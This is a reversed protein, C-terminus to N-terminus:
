EKSNIVVNDKIKMIMIVPNDGEQINSVIKKLPEFAINDNELNYMLATASVIYIATNYDQTVLRHIMQCYGNLIRWKKSEDEPLLYFQGREKDLIYFKVEIEPTYTPYSMLMCLAFQDNEMVLHLQVKDSPYDSIDQIKPHVQADAGVTYIVDSRFNSINVGQSSASMTGHGMVGERDQIYDDFVIPVTAILAGDSKSHLQVPKNGTMNLLLFTSDTLSHIEPMYGKVGPQLTRKHNGQLDYVEIKYRDKIFLEDQKEDVFFDTMSVYEGPGNGYSSISKIRKGDKGIVHIANSVLDKLFVTGSSSLYANRGKNDGIEGIVMSSDSAIPIFSIDFIDELMLDTEPYSVKYDFSVVGQLSKQESCGVIAILLFFLVIQNAACHLLLKKM